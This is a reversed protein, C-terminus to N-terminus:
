ENITIAKLSTIGSYVQLRQIPEESYSYRFIKQQYMQAPFCGVVILILSLGIIAVGARKVSLPVLGRKLVQM